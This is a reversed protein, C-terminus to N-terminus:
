SDFPTVRRSLTSTVDNVQRASAPRGKRGGAV